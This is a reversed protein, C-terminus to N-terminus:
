SPRGQATTPVTRPSGGTRTQPRTAADVYASFAAALARARTLPLPRAALTEDLRARLEAVDGAAEPTLATAAAMASVAGVLGVVEDREALGAAYTEHALDLARAVRELRGRYAALEAPAQPVPGLARVNPVALHPAPTIAELCARELKRIAAARADLEEIQQQTRVRSRAASAREAAAVILDRELVAVDIELPGIVGGVDAGRRAREVLDTMRRDLRALQESAADRQVGAPVLALQDRTREIGARVVTIRQSAEAAGPALSARAQLTRTLSDLLRCAEPLSVALSGSSPLSLHETTNSDLRGHILTSLREAEVPGVRGGDFTTELLTLRDSVAKWFTLAVTLDTTIAVQEAPTLGLVARDVEGLDARRQAVWDRLLGLYTQAEHAQVPVGLRGPATPAVTGPEPHPAAAATM